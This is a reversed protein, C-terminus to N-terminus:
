RQRMEMAEFSWQWDLRQQKMQRMRNTLQGLQMPQMDFFVEGNAKVEVVVRDTKATPAVNSSVKPLDLTLHGEPMGFNTGVMFFIILLFLIDIMSTLNISPAEDQHLKLPM